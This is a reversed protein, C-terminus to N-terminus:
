NLWSVWNYIHVFDNWSVCINSNCWFEQFITEALFACCHVIAVYSKLSYQIIETISADLLLLDYAVSLRM